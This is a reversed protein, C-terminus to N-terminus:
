VVLESVPFSTVPPIDFDDNKDSRVFGHPGDYCKRDLGPAKEGGQICGNRRALEWSVIPLTCVLVHNIYSTNRINQPDEMRWMYDLADLGRETHLFKCMEVVVYKEFSKKWYDKIEVPTSIREFEEVIASNFRGPDLVSITGIVLKKHTTKWYILRVFMQSYLRNQGDPRKDSYANVDIYIDYAEHIDGSAIVKMDVSRGEMTATKKLENNLM